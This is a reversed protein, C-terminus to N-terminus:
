PGSCKKFGMDLGCVDSLCDDDNICGQGDICRAACFGGGCDIDSEAGDKVGNECGPPAAPIFCEFYNIPVPLSGELAGEQPPYFVNLRIVGAQEIGGANFDIEVHPLIPELNRCTVIQLRNFLFDPLPDEGSEGLTGPCTM